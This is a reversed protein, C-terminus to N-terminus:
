RREPGQMFIKEGIARFSIKCCSDANYDRMTSRWYSKCHMWELYIHDGSCGADEWKDYRDSKNCWWCFITIGTCISIGIGWGFGVTFITILLSPITIVGWLIWLEM